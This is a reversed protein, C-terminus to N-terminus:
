QTYYVSDPANFITDLLLYMERHIFIGRQSFYSFISQAHIDYLHVILRCASHLPKAAIFSAHFM